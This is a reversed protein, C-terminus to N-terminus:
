PHKAGKSKRQNVEDRIAEIHRMPERRQVMRAYHWFRTGQALVTSWGLPTPHIAARLTRAYDLVLGPTWAMAEARRQLQAAVWLEPNFMARLLAGIGAGPEALSGELAAELAHAVTSSCNRNTLNYTENTSYRRWFAVLQGRNYREFRIQVTSDCWGASEVAYSPQFRGAVDNDATARLV